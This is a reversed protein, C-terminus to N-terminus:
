WDSSTIVCLRQLGDSERRSRLPAFLSFKVNLPGGDLTGTQDLSTVACEDYNHGQTKGALSVSKILQPLQWSHCSINLRSVAPVPLRCVSVGGWEGMQTPTQELESLKHWVRQLFKAWWYYVTNGVRGSLFTTIPQDLLRLLHSFTMLENGYNTMHMDNFQVKPRNPLCNVEGSPCFLHTLLYLVAFSRWLPESNPSNRKVNRKPGHPSRCTVHYSWM